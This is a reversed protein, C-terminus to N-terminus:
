EVSYMDMMACKLGRDHTVDVDIIHSNKLLLCNLLLLDSIRMTTFKLFARKQSILCDM